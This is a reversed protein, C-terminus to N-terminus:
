FCSVSKTPITVSGRAEDDYFYLNESGNYEDAAGYASAYDM